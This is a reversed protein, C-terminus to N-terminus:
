KRNSKNVTYIPYILGIGYYQTIGIKQFSTTYIRNRSDQIAGNLSYYGQNLEKNVGAGAGLYIRFAMEKVPVEVKRKKLIYNFRIKNQVMGNFVIGNMTGKILTDEFVQFFSKPKIVARYKARQVSGNFSAFASDLSTYENQVRLIEAKAVALDLSDKKSKITKGPLYAVVTDHITSSASTISGSIEPVEVEKITRNCSLKTALLFGLIFTIGAILILNKTTM